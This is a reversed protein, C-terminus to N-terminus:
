RRYEKTGEKFCSLYMRISMGDCRQWIRLLAELKQFVLDMGVALCSSREEEKECWRQWILHIGKKGVAKLTCVKWHLFIVAASSDLLATSSTDVCFPVDSHSSPWNGGFPGPLFSSQNQLQSTFVLSYIYLRNLFTSSWLLVQRTLFCGSPFSTFTETKQKSQLSFM